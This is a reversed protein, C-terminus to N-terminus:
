VGQREPEFKLVVRLIWCINLAYFVHKIGINYCCYRAYSKVYDLSTLVVYAKARSCANEFGVFRYHKQLGNYNYLFLSKSAKKWNKFSKLHCCSKICYYCDFMIKQYVLM